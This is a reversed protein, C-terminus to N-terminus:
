KNCNIFKKCTRDSYYEIYIGKYYEDVEQGLFNVRKLTISEVSNNEVAITRFIKYNGNYDTQILRYYNIGSYPNSDIFDYKTQQISNGKGDVKGILNFSIADVSREISFYDNNIESYTLWELWNHEDHNEGKFYSLEIPLLACDLSATGGWNLDFPDNSASFNDILVIYTEGVLVNLEAVWKDGIAGESNDVSTVDLGTDGGGAAWSCRTPPLIPPCNPSPGWIAFDYDNASNQPSITMTLTGSTQVTFTYWSSQHEISMCGSNFANMEQLLGFGNSNGSFSNNDCIATASSCDQNGTPGPTSNTLCSEFDGTNNNPSSITYYYIGGPTLGGYTGILPSPGCVTYHVTFPGNCPLSAASVLILEIDAGITLDTITMDFQTGSAIFSYWVDPHNNPGGVTACGVESAWNDNALTLTGNVCPGNPMVLPAGLCQDNAPQSYGIIPIFLLLLLILKNMIKM